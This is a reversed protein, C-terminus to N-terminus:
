PNNLSCLADNSTGPKMMGTNYCKGHNSSKSCVGSYNQCDGGNSNCTDPIENVCDGGNCGSNTVVGGVLLTDDEAGIIESYSEGGETAMPLKNLFEAIRQKKEIM